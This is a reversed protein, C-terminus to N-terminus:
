SAWCYRLGLNYNNSIANPEWGWVHWLALKVQWLEGPSYL